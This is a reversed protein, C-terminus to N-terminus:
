IQTTYTAGQHSSVFILDVAAVKKRDVPNFYTINGGLVM